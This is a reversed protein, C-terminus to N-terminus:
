KKKIIDMIKRLREIPEMKKLEEINFGESNNEIIIENENGVKEKAKNKKM